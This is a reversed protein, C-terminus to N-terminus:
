LLSRANSSPNFDKYDPNRDPITIHIAIWIALIRQQFDQYDLNCDLDGPLGVM